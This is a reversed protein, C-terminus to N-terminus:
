EVMARDVGGDGAEAQLDIWSYATGPISAPTYIEGDVKINTAMVTSMATVTLVAGFIAAVTPVARSRQRLNDRAAMRAPLPLASSLRALLALLAPMLLLVGIPVLVFGAGVAFGPDGQSPENIFAAILGAAMLIAGIIPAGRGVRRSVVQGRLVSMTNLWGVGRAPWWAALLASVLTVAALIALWLWPVDVASYLQPNASASWQRYGIAAAIGIGLGLVVSLAGIILGTGLVTRRLDAPAAGQASALALSHRQGAAGIAFAPTALLITELALAAVLAAGLAVMARDAGDEIGSGEWPPPQELYARDMVSLGAAAWTSFTEATVTDVEPVLFRAEDPVLNFEPSTVVSANVEGSFAAEAEGVVTVETSQDPAGIRFTGDAPLGSALGAPTVLVETASAPWRGSSLEVIGRTESLAGDIMLIDALGSRAPDTPASVIGIPIVPTDVRAEVDVALEPLPVGTPPEDVIGETSCTSYILGTMGACGLAPQVVVTTAGFIRPAMTEAPPEMSRVQVLTFAIVAVPLMILLLSLLSRAPHRRAERRSYRLAVRWSGVWRDFRSPTLSRNM